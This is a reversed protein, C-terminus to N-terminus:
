AFRNGIWWALFTELFLLLLVLWLFLAGLREGPLESSTRGATIIQESLYQRWEPALEELSFSKLNSERPNINVAYVQDNM